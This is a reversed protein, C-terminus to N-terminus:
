HAASAGKANEDHQSRLWSMVHLIEDKTMRGQQPGMMGAAGGYVTEFMGKDEMNKPYTWYDDALAPGLKGEAFHGHCGSCATSFITYGKKVESPTGRYPNEGTALFQKVADTTVEDEMPALDLVDGSITGRFELPPGYSKSTMPKDESAKVEENDAKACSVALISAVILSGGIASILLPKKM